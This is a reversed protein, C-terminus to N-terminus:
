EVPRLETLTCRTVTGDWKIEATSLAKFYEARDTATVHFKLIVGESVTLTGSNVNSSSFQGGRPKAVFISYSGYNLRLPKKDLAKFEADSSVDCYENPALTLDITDTSDVDASKGCGALAIM